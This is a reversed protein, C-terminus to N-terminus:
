SWPDEDPVGAAAFDQVNRTVVIMGHQLATAAILSDVAPLVKGSAALMTSASGLTSQQNPYPRMPESLVMTGMLWKM